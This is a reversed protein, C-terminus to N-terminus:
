IKVAAVTISTINDYTVHVYGNLNFRKTDFPGIDTTKNIVVTATQSHAFGQDCLGQGVVTVIAQTAANLVRFVTRGDNLFYNGAANPAEFTIVAGAPVIQQVAVLAEAM